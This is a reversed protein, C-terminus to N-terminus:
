WGTNQPALLPNLDIEGAPIPLLYDKAKFVKTLLKEFRFDLEAKNDL